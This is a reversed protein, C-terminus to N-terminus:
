AHQQQDEYIEIFDKRNLVKRNGNSDKIELEVSFKGPHPFTWLISPDVIEVLIRDDEFIRWYFQTKGAISSADATLLVVSGSPIKTPQTGIYTDEWRWTGGIASEYPLRNSQVEADLENIICPPQPLPDNIIYSYQPPLDTAPYWGGAFGLPNVGEYQYIQYFRNNLLYESLGNAFGGVLNTGYGFQKATQKLPYTHCISTSTLILPDEFFVNNQGLLWGLQDTSPTKANAELTFTGNATLVRFNVLNTSYWEIDYSQQTGTLTSPQSVKIQKVHGATAVIEVVMAPTGPTVPLGFGTLIEGVYLDKELLGQVNRMYYSGAKVDAVFQLKKPLNTSMQIDGVTSGTFPYANITAAPGTYASVVTDLNALLNNAISISTTTIDDIVSVGGFLAGDITITDTITYNIGGLNLTVSTVAGGSVLIDFTAGTGIGTSTSVVNSYLGDTLTLGPSTYTIASVSYIQPAIILDPYNYTDITAYFTEIDVTEIGQLQYDFRSLGPNDTNNLEYYAQSWREGSSMGGVIGTFLFQPDYNFQIGGNQDVGIIRFFCAIREQNDMTDWSHYCSEDWLLPKFNEWTQVLTGLRREADDENFDRQSGTFSSSSRMLEANDDNVTVITGLGNRWVGTNTVLLTYDGTAIGHDYFWGTDTLTFDIAAAATFDGSSPYMNFDMYIEANGATNLGLYTRTPFVEYEYEIWISAGAAFWTTLQANLGSVAGGDLTVFDIVHVGNASWVNWAEGATGNDFYAHTTRLAQDYILNGNLNVYLHIITFGPRIESSPYAPACSTDLIFLRGIHDNVLPDNSPSPIIKWTSLGITTNWNLDGNLANNGRFKYIQGLEGGPYYISDNGGGNLIVSNPNGVYNDKGLIPVRHRKPIDDDGHIRVYGDIAIGSPNFTADYIQNGAFVVTGGIERLVEWTTPNNRFAEPPMTILEVVTIGPTGYNSSLVEFQYTVGDRRLFIWDNPNIAPEIQPYSRQNSIVIRPNLSSPTTNADTYSLVTGELNDEPSVQIIDVDITPAFTYNNEITQNGIEITDWNVRSDEWTSMTFVPNVWRGHANEWDYRIGEYPTPSLQNATPEFEPLPKQYFEDWTDACDSIYKVAYAFTAEPLFAEVYNNKIENIFNNDTDYVIMEITYKGAYPLFVKHSILEDITKMGTRYNFVHNVDLASTLEVKWEMQYMDGRGLEDWTYLTGVHGGNPAINPDSDYASGFTTVFAGQHILITDGVNVATVIPNGDYDVLEIQSFPQNAINIISGDPIGPGKVIRGSSIASLGGLPMPPSLTLVDNTGLSSTIATVTHELIKLKGNKLETGGASGFGGGGTITLTPTYRYDEGTSIIEVAKLQGTGSPLKSVWPKLTADSGGGLVSWRYPVEDWTIDFSTILELPASVPINPSDVYHELPAGDNFYISPTGPTTALDLTAAIGGIAPIFQAAPLNGYKLGKDYLTISQAEFPIDTALLNFGIANAVVYQSGTPRVVTTQFFSNPFSAYQSGQDSGANIAFNLVEGNLGVLNVTVRIPSEYVGGGLTIVDGVQYGQGTFSFPAIVASATARMNVIGRAQQNAYGPFVVEPIIGYYPGGPTSILAKKIDYKNYYNKLTDFYPPSLLSDSSNFPRADIIQVKKSNTEFDISRTLNVLLRQDRDTWSNVAYKEYYVGEGTIDIIRTNLPLFKDTLYRKLAFLKILIEENTYEFADVTIPVGFQDYTGGDRVLDYFLGFLNSKKYHMSPLLQIAESSKGKDKLQFPIQMQRYKGYYEDQQNVNLWYEKIRIDYYGFWNVVNVLGKYSGVYPWIEEGQLLMERRKQNLLINDTIDENVDSKRLILEQEATVDRGFNELLLGLREDEAVTEGEYQITFFSRPEVFTVDDIVINSVFVGEYDSQLGLNIQIAEQRGREYISRQYLVNGGPLTDPISAASANDFLFFIERKKTITPYDENYDVTFLFFEEDSGAAFSVRFIPIVGYQITTTITPVVSVGIKFYVKTTTIATIVHEGDIPSSGATDFIRITNGVRLEHPIYADLSVAGTITLSNSLTIRNYTNDISLIITNLPVGTGILTMGTTLTSLVAPPVSNINSGDGVEVAGTLPFTQIKVYGSYGNAGYESINFPGYEEIRPYVHQNLGNVDFVNETIFIHDTSILGTSVPELFKNSFYYSSPYTFFNNNSSLPITFSLIEGNPGITLDAASTEWIHNNGVNTFSLRTTSDYGLGGNLIEVHVIAGTIDAYAYIVAGYGKADSDQFFSVLISNQLVPNSNYGSKDFFSLRNTLIM